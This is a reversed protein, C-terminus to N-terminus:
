HGTVIANSRRRQTLSYFSERGHVRLMANPARVHCEPSASANMFASMLVSVFAIM